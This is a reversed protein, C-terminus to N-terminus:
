EWLVVNVIPGNNGISYYWSVSKVKGNIEQEPHRVVVYEGVRPVPWNQCEFFSLKIECLTFNIAQM